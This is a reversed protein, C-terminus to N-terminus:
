HGAHVLLQRALVLHLPVGNEKAVDAEGVGHAPTHTHTTMCFTIAIIIIIMIIFIMIIIIFSILM